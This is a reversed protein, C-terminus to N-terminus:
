SKEKHHRHFVLYSLWILILIICSVWLGPIQDPYLPASALILLILSFVIWSLYPYGPAKYKLKEPCNKLLESRYFYYTASVSMWNILALVGSASVTYIFVKEPLVYSVFVTVLLTFGSLLVANSPVGKSNQYAIQKPAENHKALSLLMRSSSYIQANLSSLAATLLIFNLLDIAFPIDLMSFVSVFPSVNNNLIQGPLLALLLVTSITYLGVVTCSVITAARPVTREPNETETIALGIIGTGTYAFLVVIMSSFIGSIGSLPETLVIAFQSFNESASGISLGFAMMIGVVIFLVLTIIKISALGFEVRSLGKADFLNITIVLVAFILSLIWLPISPFWIRTFLACATVESAMGLVGSTWFMWGIIYGWWRGFIQQAHVKFSGPAPNAITMETIFSVECIMIIGGLFYAIPAFVGAIDIVTSSALFIGSGIINGLAMIIFQSQNFGHTAPKNTNACINSIKFRLFSTLNIAM